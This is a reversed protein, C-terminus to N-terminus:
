SISEPRLAVVNPDVREFPSTWSADDPNNLKRARPLQAPDSVLRAIENAPRPKSFLFGQAEDAGNARLIELQEQTEVGEVLMDINLEKALARVAKIIALSAANKGMERVFSQDIKVKDPRFRSLYALSSYGTGFDDLAVRVGMDRLEDLTALVNDADSMLASETIEAELRNPPFKTDRLARRVMEAVGGRAFQHASFNVAVRVTRPWSKADECAQRLVYEGLPVILGSEEAIPIFLGPSIMGQTPHRWRVLAECCCIRRKAFSIIPQYHVELENRGIGIRLDQEIQQRRRANEGMDRTFYRWGGRGGDKAAYLAMDAAKMLDSADSSDEPALAVGVSAGILLKSGEIQYPESVAEVIRAAFHGSEERNMRALVVFEDGGLRAVEEGEAALDLLRKAVRSLLKDGAAHGMTDNVQKFRDLDIMFIAFPNSAAEAAAQELLERFAARNAMGTVDDTRAMREIRVEEARRRTADEVQMSLGDPTPSFAFEMIRDGALDVCLKQRLKKKQAAAALDLLRDIDGRDKLPLALRRTMMDNLTRGRAEHATLKFLRLFESNGSLCVQGKGFLGFCQNVGNLASTLRTEAETETQAVRQIRRSILPFALFLALVGAVGVYADPTQRLALGVALPGLALAGRWRALPQPADSEMALVAQGLAALAGATRMDAPVPPTVSVFAMAGAALAALAGPWVLWEEPLDFKALAAVPPVACLVVTLLFAVAAADALTSFRCVLLPAAVCLACALNYLLGQSGGRRVAAAGGSEAM